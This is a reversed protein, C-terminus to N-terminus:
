TFFEEPKTDTKLAELYLYYYEPLEAPSKSPDKAELVDDWSQGWPRLYVTYFFDGTEDSYYGYIELLNEYAGMSPDILWDGVEVPQGMFTGQGSMGIGIGEAGVMPDVHLIVEGLPDVYPHEMDWLLFSGRADEGLQIRAALDRIKMQEDAYAGTGESIYWWGYWDGNWYPRLAEVAEAYEEPNEMTTEPVEAGDMAFTMEMGWGMYDLVIVGDKIYGYFPDEAETFTLEGEEVKWKLEHPSNNVMLVAKGFRQLELYSEGNFYDEMPHVRGEAEVYCGAYKGLYTKGNCGCLTCLLVLCLLLLSLKKGKGRRPSSDGSHKGKSLCLGIMVAMAAGMGTIMIGTRKGPPEYTLEIRHDGPAVSFALMCNWNKETPVEEGDVTVTWGKDYPITSAMYPTEEGITCNVILHDDKVKEVHVPNKRIESSFWALMEKDEVCILLEPIAEGERTTIELSLEEGENFSGLPYITRYVDLVLPEDRNLLRIQYGYPNWDETEPIQLYAIGTEPVTYTMRTTNGAREENKLSAQLFIERSTDGVLSSWCVNQLLLGKERMQPQLTKSAMLLPLAYPNEYINIRDTKGVPEYEKRGQSMTHFSMLYRVGLLADTAAPGDGTYRAWASYSQLGLQQVFQLVEAKELSTFNSVGPIQFAMNDCRTGLFSKEVRYFGEQTPLLAMAEQVDWGYGTNLEYGATVFGNRINKVTLGTNVLGNATVLILLVVAGFRRSKKICVVSITGAILLAVDFLRTNRSGYPYSFVFILAVGVALIGGCLYFARKSLERLRCAGYWAGGLLLFSLIFSYRYNFMQNESFGHWLMNVPTIWFSLLIVLFGGTLVLKGRSRINPNLYFLILFILPIMGVFVVPLGNIFEDASTTGTFLKSFIRFFPFNIDWSLSREVRNQPLAMVAPLLIWGSLAAASFSSLSFPLISQRFGGKAAVLALYFLASAMCVMFGVYYNAMITVALAAIYLLPKREFVLRELGLAVLPLLAVADLWSLLNYYTVMYGMLAYSVSFAIRLWPADAKRKGTWACFSLGACLLKLWIILHLAGFLEGKPFLLMLFYLPSGLYYAYVGQMNGGLVASFSYNLSNGSRITDRFWAYFNMYQNVGDSNALIRDGFPYLGQWVMVTLFVASIVAIVWAYVKWPRNPKVIEIGKM